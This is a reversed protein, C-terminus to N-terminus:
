VQLSVIKSIGDHMTVGYLVTAESIIADNHTIIIYQGTKMYKKILAALRESNRKDLAADVEDFVYFCYPRYEQIAFILSLAVLVKEGGSLSSTHFYKGKGVKIIIEVGGSFPDDKNELELYAIGKTSLQMFNRSFLENIEKLTRMFVRKKKKDIEQIAKLIEEKEKQIKEAKEWIADYERKVKEYVELAKLNVTGLRDLMAKTNALKEELVKMSAKILQEESVDSFERAEERLGEIKANVQANEIRLENVKEEATRIEHQLSLQQKEIESLQEQLKSREAFMKQFKEYLKREQDEKKAVIEQKEELENNVNELERELESIDRSLQRVIVRMRELERKKLKMETEVDREEERSLEDVELKLTEYREDINKLEAIKKRLSEERKVLKEIEATLKDKEELLQRMNKRKEGLLMLIERASQKEQLIRESELNEEALRKNEEVLRDVRSSLEAIKSTNESIVMDCRSIVEKAHEETIKSQCLPCIDLQSIKVKIEENRKKESELVAIKERCRAIEKKNEEIKEQAQKIKKKLEEIAVGIEDISGRDNLKKEQEEIEALLTNTRTEIRDLEQKKGSLQQTLSNLEAKLSYLQKRKEELDALEQRKKELSAFIEKKEESSLSKIEEELALINKELEDRRRIAEELQNEYNEKKVVLGAIEAKLDSIERHLQEQEFGTSRQIHENIEVIKGNIESAEEHLEELKKNLKSIKEEKEKLERAIKELEQEQEKIKKAVISARLRHLMSELKKYRMAQAREEELNKLYAHRERLVANIERLKEETRELERLSKEKRKEYVSIGAIEEIIARREEPHMEVLRSIENQLILNFGYPDIGIHALLELVEQRTKPKDNIKYISQGNRRVIRTIKVERSDLPFAGDSNDFILEVVAQHSPKRVKSGAFILNAAKSARLSKISLRGLVFCLADIINSKGSGNPGVIVNMRRDFIIETKQAFSKFGEMVLKKIYPM